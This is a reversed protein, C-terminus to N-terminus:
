GKASEYRKIGANWFIKSFFYFAITVLIILLFEWLALDNYMAKAPFSYIIAVPVIISLIWKIAGKYISIPYQGLEQLETHLYISQRIIKYFSIAYIISTLSFHIIIGCLLVFLYFLINISQQSNLIGYIIIGIATAFQPISFIVDIKRYAIFAKVNIPKTMFIDLDGFEIYRPLHHLGRIYSAWSFADIFFYTGLLIYVQNIDWGGLTDVQLYVAEFFIIVVAFRLLVSFLVFIFPFPESLRDMMELKASSGMLKLNKMLKM